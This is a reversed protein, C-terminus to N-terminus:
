GALDAALAARQDEDLLTRHTYLPHDCGAAVPASGVLFRLYQVTSLRHEGIQRRDIVARVRTGDAHELYAHDPLDRWAVLKEARVAADDIEVLLTVGLEGDGGLLENYTDIEHQVDAERVIREIRLMEQVQWRVTEANEFLLTVHPGVHVRRPAKLALIRELEAPRRDTWTQWDVVADRHMKRM